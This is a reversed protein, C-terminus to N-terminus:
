RKRRKMAYAVGAILGVLGAGLLLRSVTSQGPLTGVAIPNQMVDATQVARVKMDAPGVVARPPQYLGREIFAIQATDDMAVAGSPVPLIRRGTTADVVESPSFMQERAYYGPLSYSSAFIGADTYVNPLTGAPEFIGNGQVDDETAMTQLIDRADAALSQEQADADHKEVSEAASLGAGLGALNRGHAMNWRRLYYSSTGSSFRADPPGVEEMSPLNGTYPQRDYTPYRPAM